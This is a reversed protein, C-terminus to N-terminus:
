VGARFPALTELRVRTPRGTDKALMAWTTRASVIVRDRDDRFEAVRISKAGTAGGDIWTTGRAAEGLGINGRYDIEHRVVVWYYAERDVSRAASHWHATALDQIWRVWVANNVHGLEDLDGVEAVFRRAFRPPADGEM